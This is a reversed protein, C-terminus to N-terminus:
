KWNLKSLQSALDEGEAQRLGVRIAGASKKMPKDVVADKVINTNDIVEEFAKFGNSDMAMLRDVGSELAEETKEIQGLAQQKLAVKYARKMRVKTENVDATSKKSHFDKVLEKGYAKTAPDAPQGTASEGFMETYYKKAAPDAEATKTAATKAEVKVEPKVEAKPAEVNTTETEEVVLAEAVVEQRAKRRVELSAEKEEKKDDKNESKKCECAFMPKSCGDCMPKGDATAEFSALAERRAKQRATLEGRPQKEAVEMDAEQQEAVTEIHADGELKDGAALTDTGGKPHAEGIMDSDTLNYLEAALKYRAAKRELLVAEDVKAEKKDDKKDDDDGLEEKAEDLEHEAQEIDEKAKEKDEAVKKISAQVKVGPKAIVKPTEVAPVEVAAKKIEPTPLGKKTALLTKAKAVIRDADELAEKAVISLRKFVKNNTKAEEMKEGLGGLEGGAEDLSLETELSDLDAGEGENLARIERAADEIRSLASSIQEKTGMEGEPAGEDVPPLLEGEPAPAGMDPLDVEQAVRSIQAKVADFGMEKVAKILNAGYDKSAVWQWNTIEPNDTNPKDLEEAYLSEATVSLIPTDAAYLTWASKERTAGTVFKARLKARHLEKKLAEDSGYSKYGPHMGDSGSEMGQGVMQKDEGDRISEYDEKEYPTSEPDNLGGAGQFYAKQLIAHRTKRRDEVSARQLMEKLKEDSGYSKYGPHMGDSGSEMGQGVMQKDEGDRNSTYDEKEYPTAAPDNLGGAGQFYAKKDSMKNGGENVNVNQIYLGTDESTSSKIGLQRAITHRVQYREAVTSLITAAKSKCTCSENSGCDCVEKGCACEAQKKMENLQAQINHIEDKIKDAEIPNICSNLRAQRESVQENLMALVTKIKARPDAGNSVVSIEIFNLGSNIEYIKGQGAKQLGKGNKVHDCYDAETVARNGCSSCLSFQVQTGMSVDNSYGMEIQRALDPYAVKDCAVLIDVGKTDPDWSADLIIGRIKEADESAHNVFLGRGIFTEFAKIKKGDKDIVKLLEAEPFADGNQNVYPDIGKASHWLGSQWDSVKSSCIECTGNKGRKVIHGDGAFSKTVPDYNATEMAHIARCVFYIFEDSRPAVRKIEATLRKFREMNGESSLAVEPTIVKPNEITTVAYKILM